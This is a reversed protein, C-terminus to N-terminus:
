LYKTLNADEEFFEELDKVNGKLAGIAVKVYHPRAKELKEKLSHICRIWPSGERTRRTAFILYYHIGKMLAIKVPIVIERRVGITGVRKLKDSYHRLMEEENEFNLEEEGFFAKLRSKEAKNLNRIAERAQFLVIVDGPYKLLAEMTKWNIEFGFPDVFMLYHGKKRSLREEIREVIENCDGRYVVYDGSPLVKNLRMRLAKVLDRRKEVAIIKTFPSRAFAAAILPSGPFTFDEEIRNLGCGAFLDIYYMPNGKAVYRNAIISTYTPVYGAIFLLKIATWEHAPNCKAPDNVGPCRVKRCIEVLEESIKQLNDLKNKIWKYNRHSLSM